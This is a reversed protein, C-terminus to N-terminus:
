KWTMGKTWAADKWKPLPCKLYAYAATAVMHGEADRIDEHPGLEGSWLECCRHDVTEIYGAKCKEPRITPQMMLSVAAAILVMIAFQVAMRM